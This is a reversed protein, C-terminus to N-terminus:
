PQETRRAQETPHPPASDAPLVRMRFPVSEVIGNIIASWKDDPAAARVIARVTPMDYPELGRGLAYTLLKEVVTSVFEGQRAVLANRFEVPGSFSTGDPLVGSADLSKGSEDRDRWRGIADFNELAFGLPDMRAHCTACVVNKRHAELRERVSAPPLGEGNERLAPINPPPPPPPAGLLNELLWKGRVVPSTRHAYSTVTLISGQGLL